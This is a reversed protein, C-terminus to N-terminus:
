SKFTIYFNSLVLGNPKMSRIEVGAEVGTKVGTEVDTEVGTEVVTEVGTEVVTENM